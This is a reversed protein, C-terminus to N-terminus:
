TTICRGAISVAQSCGGLKAPESGAALSSVPQQIMIPPHLMSSNYTNRLSTTTAVQHQQACTKGLQITQKSSHSLESAPPTRPTRHCFPACRDHHLLLLLLLALSALMMAAHLLCSCLLLM